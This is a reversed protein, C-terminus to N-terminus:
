HYLFLSKSSNALVHRTCSGFIERIGRHGYAGMAIMGAGLAKATGLIAEAPTGAQLDGM